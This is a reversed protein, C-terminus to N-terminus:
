MHIRKGNSGHDMAPAGELWASGPKRIVAGGDTHTGATIPASATHIRFWFFFFCLNETSDLKCRMEDFKNMHFRFSEDVTRYVHDQRPLGAALARAPSRFAFASRLLGRAAARWEFKPIGAPPNKCQVTDVPRTWVLVMEVCIRAVDLHCAHVLVSLLSQDFGCHGKTQCERSLGFCQAKHLNKM